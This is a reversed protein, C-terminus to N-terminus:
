RLGPGLTRNLYRYFDWVPGELAAGALPGREYHRSRLGQALGVLITKDEAMTQQYLEVARTVSEPPWESGYFILGLKMRVRDVSEPQICMFSSYDAACGVAFGPPVAFMVCDDRQQDTLDPHGKQVRPLEPNFGAFYGFYAEGPPLHRCLRTPNVKHLTEHHLASLHYGEMFNELLNKWNTAWVEDALYRVENLELHYPRVVSELAALRPALPAPASALSVFLFGQWQELPLQPLHCAGADFDPRPGLRPTSMLRGATDYTWHHYPCMLGKGHGKGRAIPMGRHRCVNAFARLVGDLGHIVVVPEDCLELAMYDGPRAVEERRGVCLWEQGFLRERELALIAPDTYFASPMSWAREYPLEATRELAAAVAARAGSGESRQASM